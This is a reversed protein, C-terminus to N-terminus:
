RRALGLSVTFLYGGELEGYGNAKGDNNMCVIEPEM